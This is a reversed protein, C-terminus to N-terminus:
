ELAGALEAIIPLPPTTQGEAFWLRGDELVYVRDPECVDTARRCPVLGMIGRYWVELFMDGTATAHQRYVVTGVAEGQAFVPIVRDVTAGASAPPLVAHM